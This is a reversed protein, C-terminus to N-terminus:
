MHHLERVDHRQEIRHRHLSVYQRHMDRRIQAVRRYDRAHDARQLEYRSHMLSRRDLEIRRHDHRVEAREHPTAVPPHAPRAPQAAAALGSATVLAIAAFKQVLNM